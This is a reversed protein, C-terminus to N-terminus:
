PTTQDCGHDQLPNLARLRSEAALRNKVARLEALAEAIRKEEANIWFRIRNETQRTLNSM